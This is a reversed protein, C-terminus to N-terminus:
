RKINVSSFRLGNWWRNGYAVRGAENIEVFFHPYTGWLSLLYVSNFVVGLVILTKAAVSLEKGFARLMLILLMPWFDLSYRYGFQSYGVGFYLLSPVLLLLGTVVAAKDASLPEHELPADASDLVERSSTFRLGAQRCPLSSSSSKCVKKGVRRWSFRGLWLFLLPSSVFVSLGWPNMKLYPFELVFGGGERVLPEPAMLFLSYLNAPIHKFSFFGYGVNKVMPYTELTLNYKYGSETFSGFRRYNYAGLVLISLVVPVLFWLLNAVERSPKAGSSSLTGKRNSRFLIFDLVQGFSRWKQSVFDRWVLRLRVTKHRRSSLLDRILSTFRDKGPHRFLTAVGGQGRKIKLSPLLHWVFYVGMVYVVVRTMEALALFFGVWVPHKGSKYVWLSLLALFVAVAQVQYATVNILSVGTMVTSFAFFIGWWLGDEKSYGYEQALMKVVVLTGVLSVIGLLVQPTKLAGLVKVLPMLVMVPFPGFYSYFRGDFDVVDGNPRDIGYTLKLQNFREALKVLHDDDVGGRQYYTVFNLTASFIAFGLVLVVVWEKKLSEILRQM